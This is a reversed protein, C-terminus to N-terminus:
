FDLCNREVRRWKSKICLKEELDQELTNSERSRSGCVVSTLKDMLGFRTSEQIEFLQTPSARDGRGKPEPTLTPSIRRSDSASRARSGRVAQMQCLKILSCSLIAPANLVTMAFSASTPWSSASFKISQEETTGMGTGAEPFGAVYTANGGGNEIIFLESPSETVRGCLGECVDFLCTSSGEGAERGVRSRLFGDDRSNKENHLHLISMSNWGYGSDGSRPWTSFSCKKTTYGMALCNLLLQIM